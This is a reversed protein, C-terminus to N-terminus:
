KSNKNIQNMIEKEFGVVKVLWQQSDNLAAQISAFQKITERADGRYDIMATLAQEAQEIGQQSWYASNRAESLWNKFLNIDKDTQKNIHEDLLFNIAVAEAQLKQVKGLLIRSLTEYSLLRYSSERREFRDSIEFLQGLTPSALSELEQMHGDLWEIESDLTTNLRTRDETVVESIEKLRRRLLLFHTRMVQARQIALQKTFSIAEQQASLTEFQLFKDRATTFQPYLKRYQEYQYQYDPLENQARSPVFFLSNLIILELVVLLFKNVFKM